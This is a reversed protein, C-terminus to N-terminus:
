QMGRNDVTHGHQFLGSSVEEIDSYDDESDSDSDSFEEESESICQIYNFIPFHWSQRSTSTLLLIITTQRSTQFLHITYSYYLM